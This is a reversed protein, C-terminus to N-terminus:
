PTAKKIVAKINDLREDDGDLWKIIEVAEILAELLDNAALEAKTRGFIQFAKKQWEDTLGSPLMAILSKADESLFRQEGKTNNKTEM